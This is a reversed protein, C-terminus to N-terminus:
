GANYIEIYDNSIPSTSNGGSGYLQSLKVNPASLTITFTGSGTGATIYTGLQITYQQNPAYPIVLTTQLSCSGSSTDDNCAIPATAPCGAGAYVAIKTDVTTGGCTTLTAAGPTAPATWTYWVDNAIATQGFFNCAANTQGQTGTTAAVTTFPFSGAG